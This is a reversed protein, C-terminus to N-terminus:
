VVRFLIYEAFLIFILRARLSNQKIHNLSNSNIVQLIKAIHQVTPFTPNFFFVTDVNENATVTKLQLLDHTWAWIPDFWLSHFQYKNSRWQACLMLSFASQNAQFWPLTDSHPSMDIQPSNKWHFLVIFIWSLTNTQYM